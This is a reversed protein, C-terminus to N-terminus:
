KLSPDATFLECILSTSILTQLFICLAITIKGELIVSYAVARSCTSLPVPTQQLSKGGRAQKSTPPSLTLFLLQRSYSGTVM